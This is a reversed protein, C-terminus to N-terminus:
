SKFTENYYQEAEPEYYKDELPNIMSDKWASLWADKIQEKEMEKAQIAKHIVTRMDTNGDERMKEYQDILWEVATKEKM